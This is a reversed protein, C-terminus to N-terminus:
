NLELKASLEELSLAPEQWEIQSGAIRSELDKAAEIANELTHAFCEPTLKELIRFNRSVSAMDKCEFDNTICIVGSRALELPPYSPHPSLMLSIGVDFSRLFAPYAALDVKGVHIAKHGNAMPLAVVSEGATILAIEDPLIRTKESWTRLGASILPFLNRPVNPRAYVFVRTVDNRERWSLTEKPPPFFRGPDIEPQFAQFVMPSQPESKRLYNALFTSNVLGKIPWQYTARAQAYKQSWPYFGPEFDQILYLLQEFGFIGKQARDALFETTWWATGVFCDNKTFETAEFEDVGAFSNSQEFVPASGFVRKVAALLALKSKGALASDICVFYIRWDPSRRSLEIGLKIGTLIGGFLNEVQLSPFVIFIRRPAPLIPRAAPQKASKLIGANRASRLLYRGARLSFRWLKRAVTELRLALVGLLVVIFPVLDATVLWGRRMAEILARSLLTGKQIASFFDAIERKRISGTATTHCLSFQLAALSALHRVMRAQERWSQLHARIGRPPAVSGIQNGDHQRYLVTPKDLRRITGFFPAVLALWADHFFAPQPGQPPFPLLHKLLRARFIATCGTVPNRLLHSAASTGTARKERRWVSTFLINGTADIATLDSHVLLIDDSIFEALQWELKHPLWLDDQDCLAILGEGEAVEYLRAEINHYVGLRQPNKLYSFRVDTGISDHVLHESDGDDSIVCKWNQYTQNQLSQIQQHFLVPDPAFIPLIIHISM